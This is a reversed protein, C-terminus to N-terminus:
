VAGEKTSASRCIGQVFGNGSKPELLQEVKNGNGNRLPRKCSGLILLPNIIALKPTVGDHSGHRTTYQSRIGPNIFTHSESGGKKVVHALGNERLFKRVFVILDDGLQLLVVLRPIGDLPIYNPSVM